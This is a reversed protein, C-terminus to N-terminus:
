WFFGFWVCSLNWFVLSILLTQAHTERSL